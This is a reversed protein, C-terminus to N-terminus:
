FLIGKKAITELIENQRRMLENQEKLLSVMESSASASASTNMDAQMPSRDMMQMGIPPSRNNGAAAGNATERKMRWVTEKFAQADRLGEVSLDRGSATDINVRNLVRPVLGCWEAGAPEEIDCDTIKDFPITKSVKGQDCMQFRCGTPHKENVYKVGDITIAVHQANVADKINLADCCYFTFLTIGGSFICCCWTGVCGLDTYYKIALPKDIEFEGVLHPEAAFYSNCNISTM